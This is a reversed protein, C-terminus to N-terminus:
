HPRKDSCLPRTALGGASQMLTPTKSFSLVTQGPMYEPWPKNKSFRPVGSSVFDALAGGMGSSLAEMEANYGGRLMPADAWCPWTGFAFALDICHGAGLPAASPAWDFVYVRLRAGQASAGEALRLAPQIFHDDSRLQAALQAPTAEPMRARYANMSDPGLNARAFQEAVVNEFLDVPIPGGIFAHGEHRTVGILVDKGSLAVATADLLQRVTMSAALLPRWAQQRVPLNFGVREAIAQARLIEIVTARQLSQSVDAGDPDIYLAQLFARSTPETDVQTSPERGFGGSQLLVRRVGQRLDPDLMLRATCNAGASQGGLTICDPDGGFAAVNDRVWQLAMAQDFLAMNGPAVGPWCLWGLAGLRYNAHVVVVNGEFALRAGSYWDLSGSGTVFAGGHLWLLVPRCGADAAPTWVTLTLCDESQPRAFDGMFHRLDSPNQPAIDGHSSADREGAWPQAPQPDQFRLRGLPPAAYPVGRFVACGQETTGRLTGLSTRALPGASTM